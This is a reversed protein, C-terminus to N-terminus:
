RSTLKTMALKKQLRARAREGFIMAFEDFTNRMFEKRGHNLRKFKKLESGKKVYQHMTGYIHAKLLHTISIRPSEFERESLFYLADEFRGEECMHCTWIVLDLKVLEKDANILRRRLLEVDLHPNRKQYHCILKHLAQINDSDRSLLNRLIEEVQEYREQKEYLDALFLYTYYNGPSVAIEQEFSKVALETEGLSLYSMALSHYPVDYVDDVIIAKKFWSISDSFHEIVQCFEGTLLYVDALDRTNEDNKNEMQEFFVSIQILEEIVEMGNGEICEEYGKDEILEAMDEYAYSYNTVLKCLKKLSCRTPDYQKRQEAFMENGKKDSLM